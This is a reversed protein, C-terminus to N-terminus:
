NEYAATEYEPINERREQSLLEETDCENSYRSYVSVVFTECPATM